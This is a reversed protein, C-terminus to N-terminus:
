PTVRCPRTRPTRGPPGAAASRATRASATGRVGGTTSRRGGRAARPRSAGSGARGRRVRDPGAGAAGRGAGAGRARRGAGTQARRVRGRRGAGRAGRTVGGARFKVCLCLRHAFVRQRLTEACWDHKRSRGLLGWFGGVRTRRLAGLARSGAGAAGRGRSAGAGAGRAGIGAGRAGIGAGGRPWCGAGSSVCLCLGHSSVRERLTEACSDHKCARGLLGWFGGVRTRRMAGLARSGAGAAGRGRLAGAGASGRLGRGRGAGSSVCLCLGHASVRERLTEACSDHKCARGLLGWPGGVRTRRLVGLARSGAGAAGRGRLAGAGAGRAGRGAGRSAVVWARFERM